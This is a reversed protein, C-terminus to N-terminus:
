KGEWDITKSEYQGCIRCKRSVKDRSHLYQVREWDHPCEDIEVIRVSEHEGEYCRFATPPPDDPTHNVDVQDYGFVGQQQDIQMVAWVKIEGYARNSYAPWGKAECKPCYFLKM